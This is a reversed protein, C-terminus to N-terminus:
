GPATTGVRRCCWPCRSCPSRPTGPSLSRASAPRDSPRPMRLRHLCSTRQAIAQRPTISRKFLCNRGSKPLGSCRFVTFSLLIRMAAAFFSIPLEDLKPESDKQAPTVSQVYLKGAGPKLGSWLYSAYSSPVINSCSRATRSFTVCNVSLCRVVPESQHRPTRYGQPIDTEANPSAASYGFKPLSLLPLVIHFKFDCRVIRAPRTSSRSARNCPRARKIPHQFSHSRCM